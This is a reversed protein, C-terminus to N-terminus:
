KELENLWVDYYKFDGIQRQIRSKFTSYNIGNEEAAYLGCSYIKGDSLRIVKKASSSKDGKHIEKQSKSMKQRTEESPNRNADGIKKRTEESMIRGLSNKNGYNGQRIKEKTEESLHKGWNPHNTKDKFREKTLRVFRLKAEEYEEPTPLYRDQHDAGGFTMLHLAAALGVHEPNEEALLKHAIYHERPFLDILNDEDDTGGCCKPIIHHREHYENGCNFRGRTNLINNIFEIYTM